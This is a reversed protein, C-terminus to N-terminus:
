FMDYSHLYQILINDFGQSCKIIGFWDRALRM